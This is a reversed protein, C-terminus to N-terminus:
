SDLEAEIAQPLAGSLFNDVAEAPVFIRRGIRITAFPLQGARALDYATKPHIRAEVAFEPITLTRRARPEETDHM